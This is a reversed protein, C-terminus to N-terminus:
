QYNQNRYQMRKKFMKESWGGESIFKQKLARIQRDLLYNNRKLLDILVNVAIEFNQPFPPTPPDPLDRPLFIRKVEGMRERRVWEVKDWILVKRERILDEYDELLEELSGRSVGLLKIYTKTSEFKYGEAINQKGSRAAQNMQDRQRLLERGYLFLRTFQKTYDLIIKSYRYTLLYKYGAQTPQKTQQM